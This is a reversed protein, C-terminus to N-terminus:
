TKAESIVYNHIIEKSTIFYLLSDDGIESHYNLVFATCVLDKWNEQHTLSKIGRGSFDADPM